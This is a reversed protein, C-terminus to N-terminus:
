NKKTEVKKLEDEYIYKGSVTVFRKPKISENFKEFNDFEIVFMQNRGKSYEKFEKNTLMLKNGYKASISNTKVKGIYKIDAWGTYAKERQSEYIIFKDGESVKCLCRKGIFVTKNENYIRDAYEPPIPHTVGVIKM